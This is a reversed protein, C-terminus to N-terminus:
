LKRIYVLSFRITIRVAPNHHSKIDCDNSDIGIMRMMAISTVLIVVGGVVFCDIDDVIDNNEIPLDISALANHWRSLTGIRIIVGDNNSLIYTPSVERNVLASKVSEDLSVEHMMKMSSTSEIKQLRDLLWCLTSLFIM